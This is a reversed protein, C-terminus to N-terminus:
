RYGTPQNGLVDGKSNGSAPLGNVYWDFLWVDLNGMNTTKKAWAKACDKLRPKDPADGLTTIIEDWILKDPYRTILERVAQIAPHKARADSHPPKVTTPNGDRQVDDVTVASSKKSTSASLSAVPEGSQPKTSETHLRQYDRSGKYSKHTEETELIQSNRSNRTEVKKMKSITSKRSQQNELFECILHHFVETDLRCHQTPATGVKKVKTEVGFPELVALARKLQFGSIGIEDLWEDATKHFWGEPDNTRESWYIIQSLLLASIHDGTLSIFVRPITLVSAQGAIQKILERVAKQTLEFAM